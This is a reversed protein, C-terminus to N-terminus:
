EIADLDTLDSLGDKKADEVHVVNNLTTSVMTNFTKLVLLLNNVLVKILLDKKAQQVNCVPSHLKILDKSAIVFHNQNIVDLDILDSLMGKKAHEAHEVNNPTTSELINFTEM